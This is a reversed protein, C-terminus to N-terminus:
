AAEAQSQADRHQREREKLATIDNFVLLHADEGTDSRTVQFWADGLQCEGGNAIIDSPVDFVRAFEAGPLLGAQRARALATMRRNAAVIRGSLDVIAMGQAANEFAALVCSHEAVAAREALALERNM